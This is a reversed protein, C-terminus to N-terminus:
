VAVVFDFTAPYRNATLRGLTVTCGRKMFRDRSNLATFDIGYAVTDDPFFLQTTLTPGNASQVKAHIHPTRHVGSDVYDRPVVTELEWSGDAASYQHGRLTFGTNDYKGQDDAQWFELLAGPVPACRETHVVGRLTLLVGTTADTVLNTRQPSNPKFFPGEINAPTDDGDTCHPTLPMRQAAPEATRAGALSGAALGVATVALATAGVKMAARRSTGAPTTPEM